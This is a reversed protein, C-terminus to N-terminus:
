TRRLLRKDFRGRRRLENLVEGALLGVTAAIGAALKLKETAPMPRKAIPVYPGAVDPIPTVPPRARQEPKRPASAGGSEGTQKM